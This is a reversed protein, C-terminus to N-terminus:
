FCHQVPKFLHARNCVIAGAGADYRGAIRGGPRAMAGAQYRGRHMMASQVQDVRPWAAADIM